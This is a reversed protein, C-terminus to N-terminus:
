TRRARKSTSSFTNASSRRKRQSIRHRIEASKELKGLLLARRKRDFDLSGSELPRKTATRVTVVPPPASHIRRMPNIQNSVSTNQYMDSYNIEPTEQFGHVWNDHKVRPMNNTMEFVDASNHPYVNSYSVNPSTRKGKNRIRTLLKKKYSLAEDAQQKIEHIVQLRKNNQIALLQKLKNQDKQDVTSKIEKMLQIREPNLNNVLIELRDIGQKKNALLTDMALTQQKIIEDWEAVTKKKTPMPVMQKAEREKRFSEELESKAKAKKTKLQLSKMKMGALLDMTTKPPPPTRSKSKSKRNPFWFDVGPSQSRAASVYAMKKRPKPVQKKEPVWYSTVMDDQAAIAMAQPKYVLPKRAQKIIQIDAM